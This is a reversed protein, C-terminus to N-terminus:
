SGGAVISQVLARAEVGRTTWSNARAVDMRRRADAVSPGQLLSIVATAFQEPGATVFLDLRDLDPLNELRSSVIPLGAALYEFLKLPLVGKTYDNLLYPIIAVSATRYLAALEDISRNGIFRVGHDSLERLAPWSKGGGEAIPGAVIVEATPARALIAAVLSADIKYPSVNGGFVVRGPVREQVSPDHVFRDVDAVNPWEVVRAFGVRRLHECVVRSSGIAIAGSRALQQEGSAMVDRDIGPYASLLDVCHYVTPAALELGYTTPTYTWLVRHPAGRWRTSMAEIVKKNLVRVPGKHYPVVLPTRIRLSPPRRRPLEQGPHPGRRRVLRRGIRTLDRMSLEPRRLGLSEFYEVDNELALECAMYQKNTWLPAAWDATSLVLVNSRSSSENGSVGHAAVSTV